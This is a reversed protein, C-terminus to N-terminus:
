GGGPTKWVFVDGLAVAKEDYGQLEEVTGHAREVASRGPRGLADGEMGFPATSRRGSLTKVTMPELFRLRWV